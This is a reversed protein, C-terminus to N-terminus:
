DAERHNYAPTYFERLVSTAYGGRRLSFEIWLTHGQIELKLEHVVLRTARRAQKVGIEELGAAFPPSDAAIQKELAAISGSCAPEGTGWLAATPHLDFSAIRSRLEDSINTESFVSNTSDLNLAEGPLAQDWTGDLVRTHLIQNFLYSRAASVAINRKNRTLRKGEFLSAALALNSGQRGFRQQGFYNPVGKQQICSHIKAISQATANSERVAIRFRNARHAGSRLKRNHRDIRLIRSDPNEFKSWDTGTGSPRRVSFWQRTVAFRDKRGCFGVDVPRVRAHCALKEAIWATNASEKEVLLFDHEGNGSPAFGLIESVDFDAPTTRIEGQVQLINHARQWAPLPTEASRQM